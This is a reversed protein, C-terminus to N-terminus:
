AMRRKWLNFQSSLSLTDNKNSNCPQSDFLLMDLLEDIGYGVEFQSTDNPMSAISHLTCRGELEPIQEIVRRIINDIFRSLADNNAAFVLDYKSIAIIIQAGSKILNADYFTRLIHIARQLEALRFKSVAIKEGDLLVVIHKASKLIQFDEKAATVNASIASYDEGSFDSLLLNEIRGTECRKIRLHLISDISGRPTRRMEVNSHMSTTRVYYSREEFAALTKSGAFLYKNKHHGFLFEHYISTVLTTKGSGTAGVIVFFRSKEAASLPYTADASLERGIPLPISIIEGLSEEVNNESENSDEDKREVIDEEM